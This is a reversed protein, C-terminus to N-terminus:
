LTDPIYSFGSNDENTSTYEVIKKTPQQDAITVVKAVGTQIATFTTPTVQETYGIQYVCISNKLNDRLNQFDATNTFEFTTYRDNTEVVTIKLGLETEDQLVLNNHTLMSRLSLVVDYGLPILDNVNSISTTFKSDTVTNNFYITM